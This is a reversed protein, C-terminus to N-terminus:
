VKKAFHSGVWEAGVFIALGLMLFIGIWWDPATACPALVGTLVGLIACARFGVGIAVFFLAVGGILSALVKSRAETM